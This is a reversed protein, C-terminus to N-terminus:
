IGRTRRLFALLGQCAALCIDFVEEFGDPGGYYPDPVSSGPPAAPDFERLLHIKEAAQDDPARRRLDRANDTDLALILDLRHFDAAAFTKACGALPMGRRKAVARSRRDRDEGVHWSGTGASEVSIAQELGAERVLHRMIAEATPSRCINGACVFSIAVSTPEKM